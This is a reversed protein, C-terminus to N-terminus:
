SVTMKRWRGGGAEEEQSTFSAPSVYKQHMVAGTAESHLGPNLQVSKFLFFYFRGEWVAAYSLKVYVHLSPM